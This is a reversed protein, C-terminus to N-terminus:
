KNAERKLNEINEKTNLTHVLSQGGDTEGMMTDGVDALVNFPLKITEVTVGVIAGFFSM